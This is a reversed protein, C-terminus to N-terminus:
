QRLARLSETYEYLLVYEPQLQLAALVTHISWITNFFADAVLIIIYYRRPRLRPMCAVHPAGQLAGEFQVFSQEARSDYYYLGIGTTAYHMLCEFVLTNAYSQLGETM